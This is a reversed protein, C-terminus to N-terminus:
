QPYLGVDIMLFVHKRFITQSFLIKQLLTLGIDALNIEGIGYCRIQPTSKNTTNWCVRKVHKLLATKINPWRWLRRDLMLAHNNKTATNPTTNTQPRVQRGTLLSTTQQPDHRAPDSHKNPKGVEGRMRIVIQRSWWFWRCRVVVSDVTMLSTSLRKCKINLWIVEFEAIILHM